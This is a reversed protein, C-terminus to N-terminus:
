NNKFDGDKLVKVMVGQVKIEDGETFVLDKHKTNSSRPKLIISDKTKHFEKLTADDGILAVVKDGDNPLYNKRCLILDGNNVGVQNMSDGSTRLLFYKSGKSILDEKISIMEQVETDAYMLDGCGISDYLPLQVYNVPYPSLFKEITPESVSLHPLIELADKLSITAVGSSLLRAISSLPKKGLIITIFNIYTLMNNKGGVNEKELKYGLFTYKVDENLAIADLYQLFAEVPVGYILPVTESIKKIVDKNPNYRYKEKEGEKSIKEHDLLFATRFLLCGLLELAYTHTKGVLELDEVIDKFTAKKGMDVGQFFLTPRMDDPNPKGKYGSLAEKGPKGLAVSYDGQEWVFHYDRNEETGKSWSLAEEIRAKRTPYVEKQSPAKKGVSLIIDFSNM